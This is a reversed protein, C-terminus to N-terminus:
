KVDLEAKIFDKVGERGRLYLWLPGGEREAIIEFALFPCCLRERAVFESVLLITSQEAQFRFTYGDSLEKVEKTAAKMQDMVVKHRRRGEADLASMNCVFPSEEVAKKQEASNKGSQIHTTM